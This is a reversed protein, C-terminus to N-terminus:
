SAKCNENKDGNPSFDPLFISFYEDPSLNFVKVLTACDELDPMIESNLIRSVKNPSWNVAKSFDKQTRFEGFIKSRLVKINIEM